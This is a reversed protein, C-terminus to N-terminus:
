TALRDRLLKGSCFAVFVAVLSAVSDLGSGIKLQLQSKREFPALLESFAPNPRDRFALRQWDYPKLSLLLHRKAKYIIM